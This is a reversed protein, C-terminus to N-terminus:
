HSAQKNRRLVVHGSVSGGWKWKKKTMTDAYLAVALEIEEDEDSSSDEFFISCSRENYIFAIDFIDFIHACVNHIRKFMFFFQTMFIMLYRRQVSPLRLQGQCPMLPPPVGSASSRAHLLASPPWLPVCPLHPPLAARRHMPATRRRHTYPSRAASRDHSKLGGIKILLCDEQLRSPSHLHNSLIGYFYKRNVSATPPRNGWSKTFPLKNKPNRYSNSNSQRLPHLM